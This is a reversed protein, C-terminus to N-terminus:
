QQCLVRWQVLVLLQMLPMLRVKLVTQQLIATLRELRKGPGTYNLMLQTDALVQLLRLGVESSIYERGHEGFDQL